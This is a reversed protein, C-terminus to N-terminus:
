YDTLLERPPDRLAFCFRAGTVAASSARALRHLRSLYLQVTLVTVERQGHLAM